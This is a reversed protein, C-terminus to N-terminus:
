KPMVSTSFAHSTTRRGHQILDPRSQGIDDSLPLCSRANQLFDIHWQEAKARGDWLVSVIQQQSLPSVIIGEARVKKVLAQGEKNLRVRTDKRM